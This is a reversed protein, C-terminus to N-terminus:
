LCKGKFLEAVLGCCLWAYSLNEFHQLLRISLNEELYIFLLSGKQLWFHREFKKVLGWQIVIESLCVYCLPPSWLELCLNKHQTAQAWGKFNTM